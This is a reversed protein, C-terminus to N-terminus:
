PLPSVVKPTNLFHFILVIDVIAFLVLLIFVIIMFNSRKKKAMDKGLIEDVRKDDVEKDIQNETKETNLKPILLQEDTHKVDEQQNTPNPEEKVKFSFYNPFNSDTFDPPTPQHIPENLDLPPKEEFVRPEEVPKAKVEEQIDPQKPGEEVDTEPIKEEVRKGYPKTPAVRKYKKDFLNDLESRLFYRHGGPSRYATVRDKKEWRRLTDISVGLYDAAEGISLMNLKNHKDDM